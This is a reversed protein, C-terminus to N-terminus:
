EAPEFLDGTAHCAGEDSRMWECRRYRTTNDIPSHLGEQWCGHVAQMFNGIDRYYKCGTCPKETEGKM